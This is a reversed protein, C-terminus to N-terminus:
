NKTVKIHYKIDKKNIPVKQCIQNANFYSIEREFDKAESIFIFSFSSYDFDIPYYDIIDLTIGLYPQSM